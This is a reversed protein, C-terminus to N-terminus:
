NKKKWLMKLNNQFNLFQKKEWINNKTNPTDWSFYKSVTGITSNMNKSKKQYIGFFTMLLGLDRSKPKSIVGKQVIKQNVLSGKKYLQKDSLPRTQVGHRKKRTNYNTTINNTLKINVLRHTKTVSLSTGTVVLMISTIVVVKDERHWICVLRLFSGPRVMVPLCTLSYNERRTGLRCTLLEWGTFRGVSLSPKSETSSSFMLCSGSFVFM